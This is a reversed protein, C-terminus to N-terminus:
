IAVFPLTQPLSLVSALLEMKIERRPVANWGSSDHEVAKCPRDAFGQILFTGGLVPVQVGM